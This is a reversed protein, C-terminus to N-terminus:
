IVGFKLQENILKLNSLANPSNPHVAILNEFAQKAKSLENRSLYVLGLGSLAGFHRPELALTKQIDSESAEQDGILYNLTARKNWAEAYNPFNEVLQTFVLMAEAVSRSNMKETGLLMLRQVDPNPHSLWIEWIQSEITRLQNQDQTQKLQLFLDNLQPDTHDAWATHGILCVLPTAFFLSRLRAM